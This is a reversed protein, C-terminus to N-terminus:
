LTLINLLNVSKFLNIYNGFINNKEKKTCKKIYFRNSM